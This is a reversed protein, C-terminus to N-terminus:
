DWSMFVGSGNNTNAIHITASSSTSSQSSSFMSNTRDKPPAAFVHRPSFVPILFYEVLKAMAEDPAPSVKLEREEKHSM